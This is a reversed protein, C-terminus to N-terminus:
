FEGKRVLLLADLRIRANSIIASLHSREEVAIQIEEPRIHKNKEQLSKLRDIEHNLTRNM